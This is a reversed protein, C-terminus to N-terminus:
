KNIWSVERLIPSVICPLSMDVMLKHQATDFDESSAM